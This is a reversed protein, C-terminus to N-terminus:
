TQNMVQGTRTEALRNLSKSCTGELGELRGVLKGYAGIFRFDAHIVSTGAEHRVTAECRVPERIPGAFRHYSSLRAPLPTMDIYVRAWLIILQLASDVMVPDILWDGSPAQALCRTPTSPALQAIVGNEGIAEVDVIGAFIPGHFLWQEYSDSVSLPLPRPNILQLPTYPSPPLLKPRIEIEATDFIQGSEGGEAQLKINASTGADIAPSAIMRISRAGKEFSMGRLVRLDRVASVHWGPRVLSATEAFYEQIMALPMVPRGDLQHDSLYV